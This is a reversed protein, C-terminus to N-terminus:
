AAGVAGYARSKRSAKVWSRVFAAILGVFLGACIGLFLVRTKSSTVLTAISPEVLLRTSSDTALATELLLINRAASIAESYRLLYAATNDRNDVQRMFNQNEVLRERLLTLANQLETRYPMLMTAQQDRIMEFFSMACQRTLEPTRNSMVTFSVASPAGKVPSARLTSQISSISAHELGCDKLVKPSYAQLLRLRYILLDPTESALGSLRLPQVADATQLVSPRVQAVELVGTSEYRVPLTTLYVLSLIAGALGAAFLVIWNQIIFEVIDALTVERTGQQQDIM